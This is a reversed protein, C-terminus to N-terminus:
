VCGQEEAIMKFGGGTGFDEPVKDLDSLKKIKVRKNTSTL